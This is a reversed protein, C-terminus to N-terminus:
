QNNGFNIVREGENLGSIIETYGNVGKIGTVVKRQEPSTSGNNVLVFKETGRTVIASELVAIVNQRSQSNLKINATMGSKIRDDDLKFQLTVKYNAVGNVLTEAPDIATVITEFITDNGYADITVNANDGVNVKAIDTESINTEIEFKGDSIMSVIPALPSVIEGEKIDLKSITGSIPAKIVTKSLQASANNVSAKAQAVVAEQARIQEIATGAKKLTLGDKANTLNNNASVLAAEASAISNANTTKQVDIAKQKAMLTSIKNNITSKTLDLSAKESTSLVDNVPIIDLIIKIKRLASITSDGANKIHENDSSNVAELVQGYAGGNLQGLYEKAFSGANVGGLLESVATAKADAIDISKQDSQSYHAYQLDTIFFLATKGYEVGDQSSTLLNNYSDELSAAAKDKTTELNREAEAKALEANTVSSAQIQLEEPRSGRKLEALKAEQASVVAQAQSLQASYDSSETSILVKGAEVRDGVKAYIGNIKGGREFALDVNEAPKIKGTATVEETLDMKQVLTGDSNQKKSGSFYAYSGIALSIIVAAIIITIPNKLFKM